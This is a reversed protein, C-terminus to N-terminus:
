IVKNELIKDEIDYPERAPFFDYNYWTIFEPEFFGVNIEGKIKYPGIGVKDDWYNRFWINFFSDFFDANVGNDILNNKMIINYKTAYLSIGYGNGMIQNGIIRNNRGSFIIHIGISSDKITNNSIINYSRYTKIAEGNINRFINSTVINYNSWIFIGSFSDIHWLNQLTFNSIKVNDASIYIINWYLQGNADIITRERDQGTLTITKGICIDGEYYIGNFVFVTDGEKAANIGDKIYRYPHEKTGDWPGQTNDDDVYIIDGSNNFIDVTKEKLSLNGQAPIIIVGIFLVVIGIALSKTLVDKKM